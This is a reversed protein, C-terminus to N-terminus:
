HRIYHLRRIANINRRISPYVSHIQQVQMTRLTREGMSTCQERIHLAGDAVHDAALDLHLGKLARELLLLFQTFIHDYFLRSM